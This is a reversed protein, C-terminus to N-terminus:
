TSLPEASIDTRDFAGAVLPIMAALALWWEQWVGFNILAFLLYASASGMAGAAALSRIPSSLRLLSLGWVAAGCVAGVLGLELWVQLPGNHPHLQIAPGMARSADLGWGRIPHDAIWDLAHSWYGVRMSWSLPMARVLPEHGPWARVVWLVLPTLLFVLAVKAAALRPAVKPCRWVVFAALAALPVALVPADAAFRWAGVLAGGAALGLPLVDLPRRLRGIAAVPWMVALVFTTQAINKQALDVRIPEYAAVHIARYIAGGTASEILLLAGLGALGWGLVAQARLRLDPSARRAGCIAAFYLPLMLALKLAMSRDASKPVFPSWTTSMAAWVLALLLVMLTPRDEDSLRIAPLSLLGMIAVLPAFGQPGLWAMLPSLALGGLLVWGCWRGLPDRATLSM